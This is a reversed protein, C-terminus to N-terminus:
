RDGRAMALVFPIEGSGEPREACNQDGQCSKGRPADPEAPPATASLRPSPSAHIPPHSPTPNYSPHTRRLRLSLDLALALLLANAVPREGRVAENTATDVCM